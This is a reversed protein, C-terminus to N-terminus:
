TGMSRWGCDVLWGLLVVGDEWEMREQVSVLGGVLGDMWGDM